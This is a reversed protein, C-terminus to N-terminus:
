FNDLSKAIAIAIISVKEIIYSIQPLYIIIIIFSSVSVLTLLDTNDLISEDSIM